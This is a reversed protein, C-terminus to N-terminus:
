QPLACGTAEAASQFTKVAEDKEQLEEYELKLKRQFEARSENWNSAYDGQGRKLCVFDKWHEECENMVADDTHNNKWTYDKLKEQYNRQAALFRAAIAACLRKKKFAEQEPETRRRAGMLFHGIMRNIDNDISVVERFESYLTRNSDADRVNLSVTSNNRVEFELFIEAETASAQEFYEWVDTRDVLNRVQSMVDTDTRICDGPAGGPCAITTTARVVLAATKAARLIRLRAADEAQAAQQEKTLVHGLPKTQAAVQNGILLGLLLLTTPYRMAEGRPSLSDRPM